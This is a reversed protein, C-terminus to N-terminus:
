GHKVVIELDDFWVRGNVDGSRYIVLMITYTAAPISQDGISIVLKASDSWDFAAPVVSSDIPSNFGNLIARTITTHDIASGGETLQLEITNDRGLYVYETSM